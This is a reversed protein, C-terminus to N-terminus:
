SALARDLTRREYAELYATVGKSKAITIGRGLYYRNCMYCVLGRVFTKRREPKMKKWGPAHAHDIRLVGSTPAQGCVACRNNQKDALEVFELSTLGYKKLTVPLPVKVM